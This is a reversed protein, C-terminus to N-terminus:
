VEFFRLNCLKIKVLCPSHQLLALCAIYQSNKTIGVVHVWVAINWVQCVTEYVLITRDENLLIFWYCLNLNSWSSGTPYLFQFTLIFWAQLIIDKMKDRVKLLSREFSGTYIASSLCLLIFILCNIAINEAWRM